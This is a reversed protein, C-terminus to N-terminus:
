LSGHRMRKCAEMEENMAKKWKVDKLAEQVDRPITVSSMKEVMLAHTDSLRHHSVFNGIPYKEKAKLDPVYQGKPQGRTIRVPYRRDSGEENM